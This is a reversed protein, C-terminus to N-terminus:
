KHGSSGRVSLTICRTVTVYPAVTTTHDTTTTRRSIHHTTNFLAANIHHPNSLLSTFHLKFQLLM